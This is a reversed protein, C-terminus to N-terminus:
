MTARFQSLSLGPGGIRIQDTRGCTEKGPDTPSFPAPSLDSNRWASYDNKELWPLEQEGTQPDYGVIFYDRPHSINRSKYDWMFAYNGTSGDSIELYREDTPVIHDTFEMIHAHDLALTVYGIKKGEHMIPTAWRVLGQFRKGVPNERGAYASLEPTFELGMEEARIKTYPGIMQTRVSAGIVESVYIENPALKSLYQFYTEAKCYTNEKKSVDQLAATVVDSTTIKIKETGDLDVFTMELYLPRNVMNDTSEPRRAHFDKENDKNQVLVAPFSPIAREQADIFQWKGGQEDMAMTGHTTVPRNLASLFQKYTAANPDILAALTIDHDRSYLFDAVRRATDTSLREIAERSKTDLARISNETSLDVVQKTVVKSEEVAINYHHQTKDALKSIEHWAFWALAILPVVKIFVFISILKNRIGFAHKKM